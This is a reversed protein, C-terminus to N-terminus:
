TYRIQKDVNVVPRGDIFDVRSICTERLLSKKPDILRHYILYWEGNYETMSAHGTGFVDKSALTVRNDAPTEYPGYISQSTAYCIQYRPDRTDYNSWTLLYTDGLRQLHPGENYIGIDFEDPDKGHSEYIQKSLLKPESKFTVMDEELPVIWCKGQGWLLYPQNNDIFLDADISQCDYQHKKILPFGLLDRFPGLPSNSEAVGIQAEASFYMYYKGNYKNVAPAWARSSAWRVNNLDLALYPGDWNVLDTSHFVHFKEYLWGDSDKTPYLYYDEGDKLIFPDAWEGKIIPGQRIM